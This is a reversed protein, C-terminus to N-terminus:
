SAFQYFKKEYNYGGFIALYKTLGKSYIKEIEGFNSLMRIIFVLLMSLLSALQINQAYKRLVFYTLGGMIAAM